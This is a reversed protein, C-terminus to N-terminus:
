DLYFFENVNLLVRCWDVLAGRRGVVSRGLQLEEATPARGLALRLALAVRDGGAAEQEIRKAFALAVRESFASNLLQLAQPAVTTCDRRGCSVNMDPLDFPALFPIGLVRKQILFVSRVDTKEVPDTFWGQLRDRAAKDSKTELIGPQADLMDKPVPPWVPAGSDKPLLLGSVALMADRTAEADLRRVNQRWFLRNDPDIRKGDASEKSSQRYAASLLIKRHLAKLSWGGAVLESALWDLLEPHTPRAGSFGFDNPTAVIGRGFHQQWIRNVIVRATLPNGPSAIWAALTARRGDPAPNPDLASLFGAHVEERPQTFDGQYFIQTPPRKGGDERMTMARTLERRDAKAHEIEKLVAEHRKRDEVSLGKVIEPDDVKLKEVFPKIKERIEKTQKEKELDLLPLLDAPIGARRKELISKRSPELIAAAEKELDRVRVDIAANHVRIEEQVPALDIATDDQRKVGSFFARLRFHDAQSIPDFKHDHCNACAVTLGLFASGTTNALDTMLENRNKANEEFISGTSDYPGLRLYGTAILRDVDAADKPAGSVLEDGAIQERIFQDYPKDAHFSRILYDRYRWVLPQLEDREFGQTDAYRVVDMWLRAWREGARPSALLRDVVKEYDAEELESPTPPLGTLDVTVRRILTRLDAEPSRRLGSKSLSADLLEDISSADPRVVRKLSWLDLRKGQFIRVIPNRPDSWADGLRASRSSAARHPRYAELSEITPGLLVSDLLAEGGDVATLCFGTVLLDSWSGRDKWLDRTVVTWERPAESAVSLAGWGTSNPGAVWALNTEAQSRWKGANSLEFFVAGGGRKKWAFRAFRVEGAKPHEAVRFSWGPVSPCSRQTTVLLAASGAHRDDTSLRATGEGQAVIEDDEFLLTAPDPWPVGDRIWRVVAGIEDPTLTEKPPMKLDGHSHRLAQVLLSAEPDGPVASPGTEGGKLLAVRSDLRLGGKQKEPGHCSICRAQLLPLVRDNFHDLRDREGAPEEAAVPFCLLVGVLLPKM